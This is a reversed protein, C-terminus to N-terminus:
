DPPSSFHATGLRSAQSELATPSEAARCRLEILVETNPPHTLPTM